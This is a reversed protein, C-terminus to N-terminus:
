EEMRVPDVAFDPLAENYGYQGPQHYCSLVICEQFARPADGQIWWGQRWRRVVKASKYHWCGDPMNSNYWDERCGACLGKSKPVTIKKKRKSM